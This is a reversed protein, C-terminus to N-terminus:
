KQTDYRHNPEAYEVEQYSTLQAIAADVSRDDVIRVHYLRGRQIESVLDMQTDKLIFAIRERSIGDKFKLLVDHPVFRPAPSRLSSDFAHIASANQKTTDCSTSFWVASLCMMIRLLQTM